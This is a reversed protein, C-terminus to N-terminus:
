LYREKDLGLISRIVGFINDVVSLIDFEGDFLSKILDLM